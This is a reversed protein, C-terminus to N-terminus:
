GLRKLVSKVGPKLKIEGCFRIPESINEAMVRAKVETSRAFKYVLINLPLGARFNSYVRDLHAELLWTVQQDIVFVKASNTISLKDVESKSFELQIAPYRAVTDAHNELLFELEMEEPSLSYDNQSYERSSVYVEIEDGFDPKKMILSVQKKAALYQLFAFIAAFFAALTSMRTVLDQPMIAPWCLSLIYIVLLVLLFVFTIWESFENFFKEDTSTKNRERM